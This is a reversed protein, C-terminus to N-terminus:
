LSDMLYKLEKLTNPKGIIKKNRDLLFMTPTAYIFYKATLDGDWGNPDKINIFDLNNDKIFKLWDKNNSDLSIAIIKINNKNKYWKVLQPLLKKCHPCWSVYFVLLTKDSKIKSLDFVKGNKDPMIINPALTGKTLLKAQDIRNQISNETQEDLCLDDKIVYNKVIYDIVNDFGFKKFGDILYETIHQYVLENVKAKNLLTDVAKTFEKELVKKPLQKNKYYSLYEIAKNVFVDSFILEADNFDVNDLSHKKLFALQEKIPITINIIPMQASKIYRAIFSNPEKQSTKNIFLSYVNQIAKLKERTISYYEDDNPYYRLIINLLYTKTKYSKNLKVFKFYLKNSESKIVHLSDFLNDYDTKLIVSKGDNIFTIKHNNDLQLRYFGASQDKLSFRFINDQSFVSDIINAKEGEIEFLAAKDKAGIIEIKIEQAFIINSILLVLLFLISFLFKM